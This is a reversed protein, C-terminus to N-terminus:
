SVSAVFCVQAPLVATRTAQESAKMHAIGYVIDFFLAMQAHGLPSVAQMASTESLSSHTCPHPIHDTNSAQRPEGTFHSGAQDPIVKCTQVIPSVSM